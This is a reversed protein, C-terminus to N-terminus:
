RHEMEHGALAVGYGARRDHTWTEGGLAALAAGPSLGRITLVTGAPLARRLPKPARRALDFGGVAVPRDSATCSVAAPWTEVGLVLPTVLWLKRVGAAALDDAALDDPILPGKFYHIRARHAKGGLPVVRGHLAGIAADTPGGPLEVDVAFGAGDVLRFPRTVYFMHDETTLREDDRVIGVRHEREYIDRTCIAFSSDELNLPAGPRAALYQAAGDSTLLRTMEAKEVRGGSWPVAGECPVAGPGHLRRAAPRFSGLVQISGNAQGPPEDRHSRVSALDFPPPFLPEIANDRRRALVPGRLTLTGPATARGLLEKAWPATLGFDAVEFRADQDRLLATRLCGLFVSPMPFISGATVHYGADFPRHDRFQLVDLPEFFLTARATMTV